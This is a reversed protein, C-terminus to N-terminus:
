SDTEILKFYDQDLKMKTVDIRKSSCIERIKAEYKEDIKCGMIVKSICDFDIYQNKLHVMIIRWENEYEWIKSKKLFSILTDSEISGLLDM